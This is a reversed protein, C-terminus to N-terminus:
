LLHFYFEVNLKLWCTIFFYSRRPRLNLNRGRAEVNFHKSQCFLRIVTQNSESMKRRALLRGAFRHACSTDSLQPMGSGNNDFNNCFNPFLPKKTDSYPVLPPYRNARSGRFIEAKSTMRAISPGITSALQKVSCAKQPWESRHVTFRGKFRIWSPIKRSRSPTLMWSMSCSESASGTIGTSPEDARTAKCLM